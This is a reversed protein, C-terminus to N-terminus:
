PQCKCPKYIGLQKLVVRLPFKVGAPLPCIPLALFTCLVGARTTWLPLAPSFCSVLMLNELCYKPIVNQTQLTKLSQLRRVSSPLPSTDELCCRLFREAKENSCREQEWRCYCSINETRRWDLPSLAMVIKTSWDSNIGWHVSVPM